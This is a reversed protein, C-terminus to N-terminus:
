EPPIFENSYDLFHTLKQEVHLDVNYKFITKLFPNQSKETKGL